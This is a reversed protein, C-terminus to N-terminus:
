NLQNSYRGTVGYTVPELGTCVAIDIYIPLYDVEHNVQYLDTVFYWLISLLKSSAPQEVISSGLVHGKPMVIQFPLM